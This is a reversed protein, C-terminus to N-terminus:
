KGQADADPLPEQEHDNGAGDFPVAAVAPESEKAAAATRSHRKLLYFLVVATGLIFQAQLLYTYTSMWPGHHMFYSQFGASLPHGPTTSIDNIGFWVKSAAVSLIGIIWYLYPRWQFAEVSKVLLPIFLPLTNISQRSEPSLSLFLSLILAAILGLGYHRVTECFRKWFFVLILIIPGYYVVHSVLFVLPKAISLLAIVSLMYTTYPSYSFSSYFVTQAFYIAVVALCLIVRLVNITKLGAVLSGLTLRKVLLKVSVFLYAMALLISTYVVETLIPPIGQSTSYMGQIFYFYVVLSLYGLTILAAIIWSLGPSAKDSDKVPRTPFLLLPLGTYVFTPWCFLGIAAALAMGWPNNRLFFYFLLIGIVFATIDTLAPYYFAQKLIAFNVFLGIFGLWKGRLGLELTNSILIWIFGALLILSLNYVGFAKVINEDSMPLRLLILGYHVVASPLVRQIHYPSLGDLHFNRALEGYFQGDWGLGNAVNIVEGWWISYIGVGLLILFM